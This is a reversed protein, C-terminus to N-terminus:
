IMAGAALPALASGVLAGGVAIAALKRVNVGTM